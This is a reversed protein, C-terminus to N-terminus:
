SNRGDTLCEAKIYVRVVDGPDSIDSIMADLPPPLHHPSVPLQLEQSSATPRLHLKICHSV